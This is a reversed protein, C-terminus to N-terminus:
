AESSERLKLWGQYMTGEDAEGQNGQRLSSGSSQWSASQSPFSCKKQRSFFPPFVGAGRISLVWWRFLTRRKVEAQGRLQTSILFPVPSKRTAWVTFSGGAICSVQTWDRRQSSGRSFPTAFCELIRAWLIGHVSSGPPSCDMPSCLTLCLQTVLVKVKLAERTAWHYLIWRGICSVHIPDRSWSSEVHQLAVLGM